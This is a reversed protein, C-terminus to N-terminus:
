QPVDRSRFVAWAAFAFGIIWAGLVFSARWHPIPKLMVDKCERFPTGAQRVCEFKVLIPPPWVYGSTVTQPQPLLWAINQVPLFVRLWTYKGVLLLDGVFLLLSVMGALSTRVAITLAGALTSYVGLSLAAWGMEKALRVVSPGAVNANVDLLNRMVVDVGTSVVLALVFGVLVLTWLAAFKSAILKGRRPEHTLLTRWVSWRLEAGFFTSAFLVAFLVGVFTGLVRVRTEFLSRLGLFREAMDIQERLSRVIGPRLEDVFQQSVGGEQFKRLPDDRFKPGIPQGDPAIFQCTPESPGPTEPGSTPQAPTAGPTEPGPIPGPPGGFEGGFCSVGPAFEFLNQATVKGSEFRKLLRRQDQL